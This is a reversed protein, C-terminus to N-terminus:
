GGQGMLIVSGMGIITLTAMTALVVCGDKNNLFTSEPVYEGDGLLMKIAEIGDKYNQGTRM